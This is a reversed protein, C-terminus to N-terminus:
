PDIQSDGKFPLLLDTKGNGDRLDRMVQLDYKFLSGFPGGWVYVVPLVLYLTLIIISFKPTIRNLIERNMFVWYFLSPFLIITGVRTQDGISITFVFTILAAILLPYVTKIEKIILLWGVGFLSYFIFPWSNLWQDLYLYIYKEMYSSRSGLVEIEAMGFWGVLVLKGIIIGILIYVSQKFTDWCKLNKTFINEIFLAGSLLLFGAMGQEFHQTGLLLAFTYSWKSKFNIMVLLMLLLTMGDMGIWYFVVMFVPFVIIVLLKYITSSNDESHFKLFWLVFVAFFMISIFLTFILYHLLSNGGFIGFLFPQFYNTMLYHISANTLPNHTLSQSIEYQSEINPMYWIGTNGIVIFLSFIFLVYNHTNERAKM